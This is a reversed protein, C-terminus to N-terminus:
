FNCPHDAAGWQLLGWDKVKEYPLITTLEGTGISVILFDNADPYNIKAQVYACM